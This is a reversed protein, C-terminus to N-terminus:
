IWHQIQKAAWEAMMEEYMDAPMKIWQGSEPDNMYFGSENMYLEM